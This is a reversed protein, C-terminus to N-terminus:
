RAIVFGNIHGQSDHKSGMISEAECIDLDKQM